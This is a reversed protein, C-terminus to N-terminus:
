ERKNLVCWETSILREDKVMEGKLNWEASLSKTLQHIKEGKRGLQHQAKENDNVSLLHMGSNIKIVFPSVGRTLKNGKLVTLYVKVM